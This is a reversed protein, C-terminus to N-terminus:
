NCTLGWLHRNTLRYVRFVKQEGAIFSLGTMHVRPHQAHWLTNPKWGALMAHGPGGSPPGVVVIDGPQIRKDRVASCPFRRKINLMGRIAGSRSHLSADPPLTSFDTQTQQLEDLVSCVFRVCDVGAGKRRQGHMYPTDKWSLIVEALALCARVEEQRSHGELTFDQWVFGQTSYRIM